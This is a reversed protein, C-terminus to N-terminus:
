NIIEREVIGKIMDISHKKKVENYMLSGWQHFINPNQNHMDVAKKIASKLELYHEYDSDYTYSLFYKDEFDNLTGIAPCIVTKGYSFSLIVTGLNLSSDLNYPLILLDCNRLIEPIENDNIFKFNMNISSTTVLKTLEEGYSKTTPKGVIQLDVGDINSCAKILLEINKYPKIAGFFLLKLSSKNIKKTPLKKGYEDIYNPHPIYVLKNYYKKKVINKTEKCHIIIKTSLFIIANQLLRAGVNNVGHPKKNHIVHIIKKKAMKLSILALIKLIADIINYYNDYWNLWIVNSSWVDKDYVLIKKLTLPVVKINLNDSIINVLIGAYKNEISTFPHFAIKM